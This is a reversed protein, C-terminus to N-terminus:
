LFILWDNSCYKVFSKGTFIIWCYLDDRWCSTKALGAKIMVSPISAELRAGVEEMGVNCM